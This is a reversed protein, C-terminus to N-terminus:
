SAIVPIAHTEPTIIFVFVTDRSSSCQDVMCEASSCENYQLPQATPVLGKSVIGDYRNDVCKLVLKGNVLESNLVGYARQKYYFANTKQQWYFTKGKSVVNFTFVSPKKECVGTTVKVQGVQNKQGHERNMNLALAMSLFFICSMLIAGRLLMKNLRNDHKKYFM